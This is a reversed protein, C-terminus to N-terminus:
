KEDNGALTPEYGIVGISNLILISVSVSVDKKRILYVLTKQLFGAIKKPFNKFKVVM